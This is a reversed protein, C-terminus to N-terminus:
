TECGCVEGECQAEVSELARGDFKVRGTQICHFDDDHRRDFMGRCIFMSCRLTASSSKGLHRLNPRYVQKKCVLESAFVAPQYFWYHLNHTGGIGYM